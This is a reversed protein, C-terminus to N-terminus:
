ADLEFPLREHPHVQPRRGRGHGRAWGEARGTRTARATSGAPQSTSRSSAPGPSRASSPRMARMIETATRSSSSTSGSRIRKPLPTPPVVPGRISTSGNRGPATSGSPRTGPWTLTGNAMRGGQRHRGSPLALDALRSTDDRLGRRRPHVRRLRAERDPRPAADVRGDVIAEDAIHVGVVEGFVTTNTHAERDPTRLEVIEVLTCELHVPEGRRPAALRPSSGAHPRGARARRSWAAGAHEDPQGGRAAAVDGPQLRVRRDGARESPLGQRRGRRPARHDLVDGAAARVRGRQLLLVAGPEGPGGRRAVLDLRDPAPDRAPQVPKGAPRAGRRASSFM